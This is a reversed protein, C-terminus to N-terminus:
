FATDKHWYVDDLVRWEGTPRLFWVTLSCEGSTWTWQEIPVDRNEPNQSPYTHEIALYFEGGVDAARFSRRASPAGFRTEVQQQTLRQLELSYGFVDDRCTPFANEAAAKPESRVSADRAGGGSRGATAFGRASEHEPPRKTVEARCGFCIVFVLCLRAATM